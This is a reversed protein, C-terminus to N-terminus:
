SVTLATAPEALSCHLNGELWAQFMLVDWICFQSSGLGLLHASWIKRIPDPHFFGERRLRDENILAEAWDRLPGRLWDDLPIAFGAKPRDILDKPLYRRLFRRLLWKGQTGNIKLSLPLTWAFEVVRHDLLPVRAELSVAMSARDLKTLIDDPLYFITDLLMMEQVFNLSLDRLGHACAFVDAEAGGIVVQAPNSWHSTYTRYLSEPGKVSLLEAFKHLKLGPYRHRAAHPLMLDCVGLIKDWTQATVTRICGALMRRISDPMRAVANWIRNSWIHRNYGGFLEDGGDGSLGVTVYRRALQSVLFTPIQSSDAFPEDYMTSLGPMVALADEYNVYLETHETGLHRAVAAASKAEDYAVECFGITFTKVPRPSQVQMLAAITSSDVGGSLFCGVPVDAVMRIRVADALLSELQATAEETTGRFPSANGRAVADELSWYSSLNATGSGYPLSLVNGPRLKYFRRYISHPAPICNHRMYLMIADRDIEGRFEPHARLAKLESAFLFSNGAWGYYLPKEGMRDRSLHLICEQRDWVALAFMGNFRPLSDRVGWRDFCALIVETDAHGHFTALSDDFQELQRRLEQFNYLEGNYAIVFRGSASVMPQHGAPSLDLIALRRHGLAIGTAADAWAGGSDPGRHRLTNAMRAATARLDENPTERRLDIFGAIGCM